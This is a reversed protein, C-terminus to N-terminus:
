KFYSNLMVAYEAGRRDISIYNFPLPPPTFPQSTGILTKRYASSYRLENVISDLNAYNVYYVKKTTVRM